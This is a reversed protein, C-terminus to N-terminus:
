LRRALDLMNGIRDADRQCMLKIQSTANTFNEQFKTHSRSLNKYCGPAQGLQIQSNKKLSKLLQAVPFASIFYTTGIMCCLGKHAQFFSKFKILSHSMSKCSGIVSGHLIECSNRLDYLRIFSNSCQFVM